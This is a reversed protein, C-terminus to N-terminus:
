KEYIKLWQAVVSNLDFNKKIRELAKRNNDAISHASMNMVKIIGDALAQSNQPDVLIGTDGMVEKVGGCNTSVVFTDCAMAEAVVLGFGEFISSLIFLESDNMLEAIDDRRGLLSIIKHLNLKQILSELNSREEGEGVISLSINSYGQDVVLKIAHILNPFDKAYNLRGVAIMRFKSSSISSEIKKFKDLNIGNYIFGSKATFAGKEVFEDRAKQSVNTDFDSLFNTLRYAFMRLRGGENSSHATCILKPIPKFLRNIRAFINAHVMHSHIVDPKFDSILKIYLRCSKYFQGFSELELYVTEIKTSNPMVVPEKGKLYAIKVSHGNLLMQDALDCVVKEAGGGGLGTILYLIKM